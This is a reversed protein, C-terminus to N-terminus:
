YKSNQVEFKLGKGCSLPFFFHNKTFLPNEMLSLVRYLNKVSSRVASKNCVRVCSWLVETISYKTRLVLM